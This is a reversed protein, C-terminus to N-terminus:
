NQLILCKQIMETPMSRHNFVVQKLNLLCIFLVYVILQLDLRSILCIIQILMLCLISQTHGMTAPPLGSFPMCQISSRGRYSSTGSGWCEGRTRAMRGTLCLMCALAFNPLPAATSSVSLIKSSTIAASASRSMMEVHQHIRQENWSRFQKRICSLNNEFKISHHKYFVLM